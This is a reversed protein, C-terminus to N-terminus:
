GDATKGGDNAPSAMEKVVLVGRRNGLLSPVPFFLLWRFLEDLSYLVLLSTVTGFIFCRIWLVTLKLLSHEKKEISEM